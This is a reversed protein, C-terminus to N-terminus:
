ARRGAAIEIGLIAAHMGSMFALCLALLPADLVWMSIAGLFALVISWLFSAIM